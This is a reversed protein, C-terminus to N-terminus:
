NCCSQMSATDQERDTANESIGCIRCVEQKVRSIDESPLAFEKNKSIGLETIVVHNQASIDERELAKKGCAVECGDILVMSPVDRASQVFGSLGGGIGALCFMKGKGERTLEVAVQNSIQGVNSGGSCALIMVENNTSCCQETM